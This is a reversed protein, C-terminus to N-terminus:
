VGNTYEDIGRESDPASLYRGGAAAKRIAPVLDDCIHAKFVYAKAGCHLAALAYAETAYLSVVVVKTRPSLRRVQQTVELGNLDPMMLEAVLVDPQLQGVLRVAEMGASTEAVVLLDPTAELWAKMSRLMALNDDALVITTM